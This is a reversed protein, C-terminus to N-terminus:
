SAINRKLDEPERRMRMGGDSTIVRRNRRTRPQLLVLNSLGLRGDGTAFLVFHRQWVIPLGGGPRTSSGKWTTEGDSEGFRRALEKPCLVIVTSVRSMGRPPSRCASPWKWGYSRGAGTGATGGRGHRRKAVARASSFPTSIRVHMSRERFNSSDMGYVEDAPPPSWSRSCEPNGPHTTDATGSRWRGGLGTM